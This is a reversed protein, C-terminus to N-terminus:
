QDDGESKTNRTLRVIFVVMGITTLGLLVGVGYRATVASHKHPMSKHAEEATLVRKPKGSKGTWYFLDNSYFLVSKFAVSRRPDLEEPALPKAVVELKKIRVTFMKGVEESPAGFHYRTFETPIQGGLFVPDYKYLVYAYEAGTSGYKIAARVPVGKDEEFEVVIQGGSTSEAVLQTRPKDWVATGRVMETVGLNVFLNMTMRTVAETAVVPASRTNVAPDYLTLDGNSAEWALGGFSGAHVGTEGGETNALVSLVYDKGSLRLSFVQKRAAHPIGSIYVEKEFIASRVVCSNDLLSKYTVSLPTPSSQALKVPLTPTQALISGWGCGAAVCLAQIQRAAKRTRDMCNDFNICSRFLVCYHPPYLFPITGLRSGFRIGSRGRQSNAGRGREAMCNGCSM